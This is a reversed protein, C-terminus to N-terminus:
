YRWIDGSAALVETPTSVQFQKIAARGLEFELRHVPATPDYRDCCSDKLWDTRKKTMDATKDCLRATISKSKRTGFAFGTCLQGDNFTSVLSLTRRVPRGDGQHDELGTRRRLFRPPEGVM